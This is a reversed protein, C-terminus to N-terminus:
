RWLSARMTSFPNAAVLRTLLDALTTSALSHLRYRLRTRSIGSRARSAVEEDGRPPGRSVTLDGASLSASPPAAARQKESGPLAGKDM